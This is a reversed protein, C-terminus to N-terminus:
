ETHPTSVHQPVAGALIVATELQASQVKAKLAATVPGDGVLLLRLRPSTERMEQIVDILLDLRDWDDFWGVFGMVIANDLGLKKRLAMTPPYLAFRKPDIANSVVHVKGNQAGRRVIEDKLFSSVTLIIDARQLIRRELWRALPVLIQRRARQVGVIENVELLVPLHYWKALYVGIFLFFAYREYYCATPQRRLIPMLRCAAYLNYCLELVEFIIQPSRCSIWKWVRHIGREQTAGKDVPVSGATKLPDVGPPSVVTVQYSAAQLARVLSAIHVGEGGRGQTRHHYIFEMM